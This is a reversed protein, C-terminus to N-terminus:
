FYPSSLGCPGRGQIRWQIIVLPQFEGKPNKTHQLFPQSSSQWILVFAKFKEWCERWCEYGYYGATWWLKILISRPFLTSSLVVAKHNSFFFGGPALWYNFTTCDYRAIHPLCRLQDVSVFPTLQIVLLPSEKRKLTRSLQEHGLSSNKQAMQNEWSFHPFGLRPPLPPPFKIRLRVRRAVPTQPYVIWANPLHAYWMTKHHLHRVASKNVSCNM